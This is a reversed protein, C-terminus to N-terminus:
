RGNGISVEHPAAEALASSLARELEALHFPKLLYAAPRLARAEETPPSISAFVLPLDPRRSRLAAALELVGPGAPELLAVDVEVRDDGAPVLVPEFGLRTVFRELLERIELVPESILIRAVECITPCRHCFGPPTPYTNLIFFCWM